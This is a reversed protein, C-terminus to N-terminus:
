LPKKAEDTTPNRYVGSGMPQPEYWRADPEIFKPVSEPDSLPDLHLVYAAAWDMWAALEASRIEEPFVEDVAMLFEGIQNAGKWRSAMKELDEGLKREHAARRELQRQRELAAQREVERQRDEVRKEKLAKSAVDLGIIFKGLRAELASKETDQWTHQVGTYEANEIKLILRGCPVLDYKPPSFFWAREPLGRKGREAEAFPIQKKRENLSIQMQEGHVNVCTKWREPPQFRPDHSFYARGSREAREEIKILRVPWKLEQLARILTDMVRLARDLQERSVYIDIRRPNKPAVLGYGDPKVSVMSRKAAAVLHHPNQLETGVVTKPPSLDSRPITTPPTATIRIRPNKQTKPLPSKQPTKGHALKAWYGRGPRPINHSRCIKALGVNSIGYEKALHLMPTEWVQKYLTERDTVTEQMVAV